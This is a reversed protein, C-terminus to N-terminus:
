KSLRQKALAAYQADEEALAETLEQAAWVEMEAKLRHIMQGVQAIGPSNPALAAQIKRYPTGQSHLEWVKKEVPNTWEKVWFWKSANTYYHLETDMRDQTHRRGNVGPANKTYDSMTGDANTTEIDDFGTTKLKKYWIKQLQLYEKKTMGDELVISSEKNREVQAKNISKRQPYDSSNSMRTTM